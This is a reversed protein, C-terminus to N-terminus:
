KGGSKAKAGKKAAAAIGKSAAGKAAKAGKVAGETQGAVAQKQGSDTSAGAEKVAGKTDETWGVTETSINEPSGGIWRLVKDPLTAILTFAKQVVTLYMSTYILISFFYAYAGAWDVYGGRVDGIETSVNTDTMLSTFENNGTVFGIANDFGANIMWISVYSLAIAAIYGIIMMSPRLFINLLIMIAAEGKGFAGEGEPHTVGLAVIPGAVMAEIVAMLWAIGGFTFLMYPLVPVYYSTIFGIGVMVSLWAAVIPLSMGMLVFVFMDFPPPLLSEIISQDLIALSMAGSFNIYYTGMQALAVIPNVGPKDIIDLGQKFITSMGVLPTVIFLEIVSNIVSTFAEILLNFIPRLFDNYFIDALVGGFCTSWFVIKLQGCGFNISPLRFGQGSFDFNVKNAFTLPATGPQAGTKIILSNIIFGYVTSADDGLKTKLTGRLIPLGTSPQMGSGQILNQILRMTKLGGGPPLYALWDCLPKLNAISGIPTNVCGGTNSQNFPTTITAADFTCNNLGSDEDIQGSFDQAQQSIKILNFFYSGAMLWGQSTATQIFTRTNDAGATQVAQQILTLTPLMIGNYDSVAGQFETGNFLPAGGTGSPNGWLTCNNDTSNACADNSGVPMPVGFPQKAVLSGNNTTPPVGNNPPVLQPDNNVMTQAVLGVDVFMQQVAIARSMNATQIDSPTLNTITKSVNAGLSFHNWQLKGCIGNLFHYPSDIPLNPMFLTYPQGVGVSPQNQQASLVNVTSIFDPVPTNCFVTVNTTPTTGLQLCPGGRQSKQALYNARVAELQKQLGLMCVQGALMAEAGNVIQIAVGGSPLDKVPNTQAQIITGGRNLYGLAADWVKDAAGVGQVVVWMIFIQM